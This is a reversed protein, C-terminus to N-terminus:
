RAAGEKEADQSERDRVGCDACLEADFRLPAGCDACLRGPESLYAALNEPDHKDSLTEAPM